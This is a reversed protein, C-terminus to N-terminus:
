WPAIGTARSLYASTTRELAVAFKSFRGRMVKFTNLTLPHIAHAAAIKVPDNHAIGNRADNLWTLRANWDAKGKTGPYALELDPWIPQGFKAWDAGINGPGANGADLKRNSLLESRFAERLDASPVQAPICVAEVAEDHLDRCFGQVEAALRLFLAHNLETM